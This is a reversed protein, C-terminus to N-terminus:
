MAPAVMPRGKPLVVFFIQIKKCNGISVSAFIHYFIALGFWLADSPHRTTYLGILFVLLTHRVTCLAASPTIATRFCVRISKRPRVSRGNRMASRALLKRRPASGNNAASHM